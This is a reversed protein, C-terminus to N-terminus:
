FESKFCVSTMSLPPLDYESDDTVTTESSYVVLFLCIVPTFMLFLVKGQVEMYCHANAIAALCFM